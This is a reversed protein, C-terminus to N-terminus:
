WSQRIRPIMAEPGALVFGTDGEKTSEGSPTNGGQKGCGALLMVSLFGIAALIRKKKDAM